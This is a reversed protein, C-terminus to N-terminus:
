LAIMNKNAFIILYFKSNLDLYYEKEKNDLNYSIKQGIDYYYKKNKSDVILIASRFSPILGWCLNDIKTIKLITINTGFIKVFNFLNEKQSDTFDLNNLIKQTEKDIQYSIGVLPEKEMLEEDLFIETYNNKRFNIKDFKIANEVKKGIDKVTKKRKERETNIYNIL